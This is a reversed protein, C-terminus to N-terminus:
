KNAQMRKKLDIFLLDYQEKKRREGNSISMTNLNTMIKEFGDLDRIAFYAELLNFYISTTVDKDIRAKRNTIDSEQLATNWIEIAHNLKTKAGAEDDALSNLGSSAENYAMLLDAYTEDKSKIYDIGTKRPERKFGIRDNVLNSIFTLNEQLIKEEYTKALAEENYSVSTKSDASKYTKFSNLEQPTLYFLEKGDASIVKVSMTHRYTFEVRYYNVQSTTTTGNASSVVSKQETVQRPTTYEYGNLTVIIKVANDQNSEFGDLKLYTSALAAYDYTGKLKPMSVNRKYPPYPINKVPKNNENLLQKEIIKEAMSKEKWATMEQTFKDEAAKVKAPHEAVAQQYEQEALQKEREYDAMLKANEAEYAAFISSQYNKISSAIPNTPLKIYRYEIDDTKIRQAISSGLVFMAIFLLKFKKM